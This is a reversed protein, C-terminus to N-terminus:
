ASKLGSRELAAALSIGALLGVLGQMANGPLSALAPPLSFFFYEVGFYGSVMTVAGLIAGPLALLVRLAGARESWARHSLFGVIYGELGKIALTPLAWHSYGGYLDALASGVGGAAAAAIPGFLLAGAIIIGDGLNLYGETAPMPIRVALTVAAVLATLLGLRALQGTRM